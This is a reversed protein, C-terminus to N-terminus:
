VYARDYIKRTHNFDYKFKLNKFLNSAREARERLIQEKLKVLAQKEEEEKNKLLEIEIEKKRNAEIEKKHKAEQSKKLLRTEFL